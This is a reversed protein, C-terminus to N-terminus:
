EERSIEDPLENVDDAAVPFHAALAEGALRIGEVLGGAVDGARFRERVRNVVGDWFDDPVVADIGADGLVAFRRSAVAVFFMVGNREQTATMGIREFTRRAAALIDRPARRALHVRIEGSTRREFDAIAALVRQEEDRTLFTGPSLRARRTGVRLLAGGILMILVATIGLLLRGTLTPQEGWSGEPTVHPFAAAVGLALGALICLIGGIKWGPAM